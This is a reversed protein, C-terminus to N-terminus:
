VAVKRGRKRPANSPRSQQVVEIARAQAEFDDPALQWDRLLFLNYRVFKYGSKAYTHAPVKGSRRWKRLTEVSIGLFAAAAKEKADFSLLVYDMTKRYIETGMFWIDSIWFVLSATKRINWWIAFLRKSYLSKAIANEAFAIATWKDYVDVKWQAFFAMACGVSVM